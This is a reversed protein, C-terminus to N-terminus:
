PVGRRYLLLASLVARWWRVMIFEHWGNWGPCQPQDEPKVHQCGHRPDAANYGNGQEKEGGCFLRELGNVLESQYIGHLLPKLRDRPEAYTQQKDGTQKLEAGVWM